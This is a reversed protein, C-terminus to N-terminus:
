LGKFWVEFQDLHASAGQITLKGSGIGEGATLRGYTFLLYDEATANLILDAQTGEGSGMEFADGTVSMWYQGSEETGANFGYVVPKPLRASPRFCMGLWRPSMDLLVPVCDPDLGAGSQFASRIDWDHIALEQIRLEVYSAATMAGRRVHWCLTDWSGEGFGDFQKHLGEYSSDFAELIRGALEGRRDIDRQANNASLVAPDPPVFGAPPKSDGGRGRAMSEAQREAGGLLHSVVDRVQWEACASPLEWQDSTLKGLYERINAALRKAVEVRREIETM